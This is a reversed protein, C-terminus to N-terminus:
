LFFSTFLAKKLFLGEAPAACFVNSRTARPQAAPPEAGRSASCFNKQQKKKLFLLAEKQKRIDMMEM